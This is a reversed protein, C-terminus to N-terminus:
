KETIKIEIVNALDSNKLTSKYYEKVTQISDAKFEIIKRTRNKKILEVQFDKM